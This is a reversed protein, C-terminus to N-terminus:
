LLLILLAAAVAGIVGGKLLGQGYTKKTKDEYFFGDTSTNNFYPNTHKIEIKTRRPEYFRLKGKTNRRFFGGKFETISVYQTDILKIEKIKLSRKGVVASIDYHENTGQAITGIKVTSDEYYEIVVNCLKAISDNWEKMRATDLYPVEKEQIVVTTGKAILAKVEKVRENYKETTEFLRARLEKMSEQNGVIQADKVTIINGLSDKVKAIDTDYKVQLAQFAETNKCRDFMMIILTLVLGVILLNKYSLNIIM